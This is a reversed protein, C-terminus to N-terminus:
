NGCAHCPGVRVPHQDHQKDIQAPVAPPLAVSGSRGSRGTSLSDRWTHGRTCRRTAIAPLDLPYRHGLAEAALDFPNRSAPDDIVKCLLHAHILGANHFMAPTAHCRPHHLLATSCFLRPHRSSFRDDPRVRQAYASAGAFTELARWHGGIGDDHDLTVSPPSATFVACTYKLTLAALLREGVARAAALNVLNVVCSSLPGVAWSRWWTWGSRWRGGGGAHVGPSCVDPATWGDMTRQLVGRKTSRTRRM